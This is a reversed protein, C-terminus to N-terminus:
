PAFATGAFVRSAQRLVVADVRLTRSWPCWFGPDPLLALELLHRKGRHEKLRMRRAGREVHLLGMKAGRVGRGVGGGGWARAESDKGCM